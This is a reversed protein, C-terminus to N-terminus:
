IGLYLSIDLQITGGNRFHRLFRISGSQNPQNKYARADLVSM